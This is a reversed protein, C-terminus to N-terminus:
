REEEDSDEDNADPEAVSLQPTEDDSAIQNENEDVETPKSVRNEKTKQTAM